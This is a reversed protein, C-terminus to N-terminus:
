HREIRLPELNTVIGTHWPGNELEQFRVRKNVEVTCRGDIRIETPITGVKAYVAKRYWGSKRRM